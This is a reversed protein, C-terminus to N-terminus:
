SEKNWTGWGYIGVSPEESQEVVGVHANFYVVDGSIYLMERLDVLGMVREMTVMFEGGRRQRWGEPRDGRCM